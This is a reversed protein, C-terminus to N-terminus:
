ASFLIYGRYVRHYLVLGLLGSVFLEDNMVVM